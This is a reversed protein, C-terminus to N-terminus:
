AASGSVHSLLFRCLADLDTRSPVLEVTASAPGERMVVGGVGPFGSIADELEQRCRPCSMRPLPVHWRALRDATKWGRTELLRLISPVDTASPDFRVVARETIPNVIAELVGALREIQRALPAAEGACGLGALSLEIRHDREDVVTAAGVDEGHVCRTEHCDRVDTAGSSPETKM